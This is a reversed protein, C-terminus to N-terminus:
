DSFCFFIRDFLFISSVIYLPKNWYYFAPYAKEGYFLVGSNNLNDAAKDVNYDDTLLCKIEERSVYLSEKKVFVDSKGPQLYEEFFDYKWDLDICFQYFTGDYNEYIAKEKDSLFSQTWEMQANEILKTFPNTSNSGYLLYSYKNCKYEYIDCHELYSSVINHEIDNVNFKSNNTFFTDESLNYIYKLWPYKDSFKEKLCILGKPSLAYIDIVIVRDKKYSENKFVVLEIKRKEVYGRRIFEKLGKERMYTNNEGIRVLFETRTIYGNPLWLFLYKAVKETIKKRKIM